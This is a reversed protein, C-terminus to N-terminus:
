SVSDLALRRFRDLVVATAVATSSHLDLILPPLEKLLTYSECVTWHTTTPSM